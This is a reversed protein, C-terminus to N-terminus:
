RCVRRRANQVRQLAKNTPRSATLRARTYFNFRQVARVSGSGWVGDVRGYYCGVRQLQRQLKAALVTTAPRKIVVAPKKPKKPKAAGTLFGNLAKKSQPGFDGDLAGLYYGATRLRKQVAIISADSLRELTELALKRRDKAFKMFLKVVEGHQGTKDLLELARVYGEHLGKEGAQKYRWLALKTDKPAGMGTERLEGIAIMAKRSGGKAANRLLPLAERAAKRRAALPKDRARDLIAEAKRFQAAAPLDKDPDDQPADAAVDDASLQQPASLRDLRIAAITAFAGDPYQALYAEYMAADDSDKVTDWFALETADTAQAAGDQDPDAADLPADMVGADASLQAARLRAIPAFVGDPYQALYAEYAAADDSGEVSQWFATEAALDGQRDEAPRAEDAQAVGTDELPTVEVVPQPPATGGQAIRDRLGPMSADCAAERGQTMASDAGFSSLFSYYSMCDRSISIDGVVECVRGYSQAMLSDGAGDQEYIRHQECPNLWGEQAGGQGAILGFLAIAGLFGTRGM